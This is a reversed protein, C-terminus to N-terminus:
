VRGLTGLASSVQHREVEELESKNAGRFTSLTDVLWSLLEHLFFHCPLKLEDQFFFEKQFGDKAQDTILDILEKCVGAWRGSRAKTKMQVKWYRPDLTLENLASGQSSSASGIDDPIVSGYYLEYVCVIMSMEQVSKSGWNLVKDKLKAFLSMTGAALVVGGAAGGVAAAGSM